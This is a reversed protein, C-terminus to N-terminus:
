LLQPLNQYITWWLVKTFFGVMQSNVEQIFNVRKGRFVYNTSNKTSSYLILSRTFIITIPRTNFSSNIIPFNNYIHLLSTQCQSQSLCIRHLQWKSKNKNLSVFLINTTTLNWTKVAAFISPPTKQTTTDQLKTSVPWKMPGLLSPSQLSRQFTPWYRDNRLAVSWFVATMLM